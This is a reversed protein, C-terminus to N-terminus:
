GLASGPAPVARGRWRVERRWTTLVVSWAFIAGFGILPVPFFAWTWWRFSGVRRLLARLQLAAAVWGAMLLPLPVTPVFGRPTVAAVAFAAV